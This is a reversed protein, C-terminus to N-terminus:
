PDLSASVHFTDKDGTRTVPSELRVERFRPSNELAEIVAAASDAVGQIRLINGSYNLSTLWVAAHLRSTTELLVDSLKTQNEVLHRLDHLFLVASENQDRLALQQEGEHRIAAINRELAAVRAFKGYLHAAPISFLSILFVTLAAVQIWALRSSNRLIRDGSSSHIAGPLTRLDRPFRMESLLAPFVSADSFALAKAAESRDFGGACLYASTVGPALNDRLAKVEELAGDARGTRTSPLEDWHYFGTNGNYVCVTETRAHNGAIYLGDRGHLVAFGFVAPFIASVPLDGVVRLSDNLEERPSALATVAVHKERRATVIWAVETTAVDVPLHRMLAYKVAQGLDDEAALPLQLNVM